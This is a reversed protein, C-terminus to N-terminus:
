KEQGTITFKGRWEYQQAGRVAVVVRLPDAAFEQLEIDTVPVGAVILAAITTELWEARASHMQQVRDAIGDRVMSM